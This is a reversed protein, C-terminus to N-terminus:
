PDFVAAEAIGDLTGPLEPGPPVPVLRNPIVAGRLTILSVAPTTRGDDAYVTSATCGPSQFEAILSLFVCLFWRRAAGTIHGPLDYPLCFRDFRSDTASGGTGGYSFLAMM